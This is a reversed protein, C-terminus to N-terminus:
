KCDSQFSIEQWGLGMFSRLVVIISEDQVKTRLTVAAGPFGTNTTAIEWKASPSLSNRYKKAFHFAAAECSGSRDSGKLNFYVWTPSILGSLTIVVTAIFLLGSKVVALRRKKLEASM